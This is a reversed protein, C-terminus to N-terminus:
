YAEISDIVNHVIKVLRSVSIVDKTDKLSHNPHDCGKDYHDHYNVIPIGASYFPAYDSNFFSCASVRYTFRGNLSLQQVMREVRDNGLYEVFVVNDHDHGITDLNEYHLVYRLSSSPMISVYHRSGRFARGEFTEEGDWFCCVVTRTFMFSTEKFRKLFLLLTVVGSANDNAAQYHNFDTSCMAGDYHGGVIITSDTQGPISVIINRGIVGSETEFLQVEPIYGMGSIEKKLFEFALENGETGIRRGQFSDRCLSDLWARGQEELLEEATKPPDESSTDVPDVVLGHGTCSFLLIACSLLCFLSDRLRM